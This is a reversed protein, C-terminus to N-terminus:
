LGPPSVKTAANGSALAPRRGLVLGEVFGMGWAIHMVSFAVPLAAVSTQKEPERRRWALVSALLVAVAYPAFGFLLRPNRLAGLLITTGAIVASPPVLHRPRIAGFGDKKAMAAKGRGYRRYQKFFHGLRDRVLWNIHMEPDYGITHGRQQLRFDFDVDEAALLTEDWGGVAKVIEARYVGFSAHDTLRATTAYHNISDGVGFKSSLALAIARGTPSRGIGLRKGGIAGMQPNDRLTALATCLYTSNVTSHGDVRAIFEGRSRSLGTNLSSPITTRDNILLQVRPDRASVSSVLEVTRDISHGDIVVVELDVEEQNLVSSLADLISVEENLVPMLVSVLAAM